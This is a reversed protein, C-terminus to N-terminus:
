IFQRFQVLLHLVHVLRPVFLHRLRREPSWRPRPSNEFQTGRKGANGPFENYICLLLGWAGGVLGSLRPRPGLSAHKLM